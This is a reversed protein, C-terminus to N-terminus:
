VLSLTADDFFSFGPTLRCLFFLPLWLAGGPSHFRASSLKSPPSARNLKGLTLSVSLFPPSPPSFFFARRRPPFPFFILLTGEPPTSFVPLPFGIPPPFVFFYHIGPHPSLCFSVSFVPDRFRSITQSGSDIKSPLFFPSLFTWRWRTSLPHSETRSV